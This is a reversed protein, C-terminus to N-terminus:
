RQGVLSRAPLRSRPAQSRLPAPGRGDVIGSHAAHGASSQLQRHRDSEGDGAFTVDGPIEQGAVARVLRTTARSTAVVRSTGAESLTYTLPGTAEPAVSLAAPNSHAGDSHGGKGCRRRTSRTRLTASQLLPSAGPALQEARLHRHGWCLFDFSGPDCADGGPRYTMAAPVRTRGAPLLLLLTRRM